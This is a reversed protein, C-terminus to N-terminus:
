EGLETLEDGRRAAIAEVYTILLEHLRDVLDQADVDPDLAAKFFADSTPAEAVAEVIGDAYPVRHEYLYALVELQERRSLDSFARGHDAPPSTRQPSDFVVTSM